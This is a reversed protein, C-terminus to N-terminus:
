QWELGAVNFRKKCHSCRVDKVSFRKHEDTWSGDPCAQSIVHGDEDHNYDCTDTEDLLDITYNCHPCEVYVEICLRATATKM